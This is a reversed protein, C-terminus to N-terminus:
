SAFTKEFQYHTLYCTASYIRNRNYFGEIYLSLSSKAVAFFKTIELSIRKKLLM